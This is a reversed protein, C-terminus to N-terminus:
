HPTICYDVVSRDTSRILTFDNCISTRGNVVCCSSDTLIEILNDGYSNIDLDVVYRETISEIDEIYNAMDVILIGVCTCHGRM